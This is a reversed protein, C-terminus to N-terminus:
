VTKLMEEPRKPVARDRTRQRERSNPEHLPLLLYSPPFLM